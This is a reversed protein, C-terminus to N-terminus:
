NVQRKRPFGRMEVVRVKKRNEGIKEEKIGANELVKNALSLVIAEEIKDIIGEWERSQTKRTSSSLDRGQGWEYESM